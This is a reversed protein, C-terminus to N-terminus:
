RRVGTEATPYDIHLSSPWHGYTGYNFTYADKTMDIEDIQSYISWDTSFYPLGEPDDGRILEAILGTAGTAIADSPDGELTLRVPMTTGAYEWPDVSVDSFVAAAAVTAESSDERIRVAVDDETYARGLTDFIVIELRVTAPPATADISTIPTTSDDAYWALDLLFRGNEEELLDPLYGALSQMVGSKMGGASWNPFNDFFGQGQQFDLLATPALTFFEEDYYLDWTQKDLIGNGIVRLLEDTDLELKLLYDFDRFGSRAFQVLPMPANPSCPPFNMPFDVFSAIVLNAAEATSFAAEVGFYEQYKTLYYDIIALLDGLGQSLIFDEIQELYYSFMPEMIELGGELLAENEGAPHDDMVGVAVDMEGLHWQVAMHATLMDQAVADGACHMLNGMAFAVKWEDEPYSALADALLWTVFHRNHPDVSTEDVKNMERSDTILRGVDPWLAGLLLYSRQHRLYDPDFQVGPRFNTECLTLFQDAERMHISPGYAQVLGAALLLGALALRFSKRWFM